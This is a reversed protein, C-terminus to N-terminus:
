LMKVAHLRTPFVPVQHGQRELDSQRIVVLDLSPVILIDNDWRGMAAYADKPANSWKNHHQEVLSLWVVSQTGVRGGIRQALGGARNASREMQWSEAGVARNTGNCPRHAAGSYTIVYGDRHEWAWDESRIGIPVFVRKNFFEDLSEPPRQFLPGLLWAQTTTIGNRWTQFGNGCQVACVSVRRRSIFTLSTISRADHEVLASPSPGSGEPRVDPLIRQRHDLALKGDPHWGPRWAPSRSARPIRRSSPSVIRTASTGSPSLGGM